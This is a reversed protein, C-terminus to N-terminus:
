TAGEELTFSNPSFAAKSISPKVFKVQCTADEAKDVSATLAYTREEDAKLYWNGDQLKPTPGDNTAEWKFRYLPATKPKLDNIPFRVSSGVYVEFNAPISFEKITVKNIILSTTAEIGQASATISVNGERLANVTGGESVTAQIPNSSTWQIAVTDAVGEPTIQLYSYLDLMQGEDVSYPVDESFTMTEVKGSFIDEQPACAFFVTLLVLFSALLSLLKKM